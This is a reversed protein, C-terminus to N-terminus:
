FLDLIADLGRVYLVVAVMPGLVILFALGIGTVADTRWTRAWHSIGVKDFISRLIAQAIAILVVHLVWTLLTIRYDPLATGPRARDDPM